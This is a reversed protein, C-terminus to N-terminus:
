ERKHKRIRMRRAYPTEIGLKRCARAFSGQHIGLAESAEKNSNYLRASREVEDSSVKHM